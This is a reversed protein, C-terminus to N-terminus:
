HILLAQTRVTIPISSYLKEARELVNFAAVALPRGSTVASMKSWLVALVIASVSSPFGNIAVTLLLSDSLFPFHALVDPLYKIGM